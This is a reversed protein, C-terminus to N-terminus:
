LITSYIGGLDNGTLPRNLVDTLASATIVLKDHQTFNIKTAPTLTVLLGLANVETTASKFHITTPYTTVPVGKVKTVKPVLLQYFAANNANSLPGSFQIRLVQQTTTKAKKGTGVTVKITTLQTSLVVIPPPINITFSTSASSGTGQNNSADRIGSTNVSLV